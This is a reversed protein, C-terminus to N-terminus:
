KVKENEERWKKLLNAARIASEKIKDNNNKIQADLESTIDKLVNHTSADYNSAPSKLDDLIINKYYDNLGVLDINQKVLQDTIIQEKKIQWTGKAGALVDLQEGIIKEIYVRFIPIRNEAELISDMGLGVGFLTASVGGAVCLGKACIALRLALTSTHDLPNNELKRNKLFFSELLTFYVHWIFLVPM